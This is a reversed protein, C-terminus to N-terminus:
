AKVVKKKQSQELLVRVDKLKNRWDLLTSKIEMWDKLDIKKVVLLVKYITVSQNIQSIKAEVVKSKIADIIFMEIEEPKLNLHKSIEEFSLKANSLGLKALTLYQNKRSIQNLNLATSIQQYSSAKSQFEVASLTLYDKILNCYQPPIAITSQELIDSLDLIDKSNLSGALYEEILQTSPNSIRSIALKCLELSKVEDVPKILHAFKVFISRTEEELKAPLFLGEMQDVIPLLLEPYNLVTVLDLISNFIAIKTAPEILYSLNFVNSLTSIVSISKLSKKNNKVIKNSLDDFQFVKILSNLFQLFLKESNNSFSLIHIALIAASEFEKDPIAVFYKHSDVIEQYLQEDYVIEQDDENNSSQAFSQCKQALELGQNHFDLLAVYEAVSGALTEDVTIFSQTAM